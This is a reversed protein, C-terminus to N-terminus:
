KGCPNFNCYAGRLYREFELYGKVVYPVDETKEPTKKMNRTHEYGRNLVPARNRESKGGLVTRTKDAADFVRRTDELGADNMAEINAITSCGSLLAALLILLSKM